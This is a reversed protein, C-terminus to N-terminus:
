ARNPRFCCARSSPSLRASTQAPMARNRPTTETFPWAGGSARSAKLRTVSGFTTRRSKSSSPQAYMASSRAFACSSRVTPAISGVIGPCENVIFRSLRTWHSLPWSDSSPRRSPQSFDMPLCHHSSATVPEILSAFALRPPQLEHMVPTTLEHPHPLPNRARHRSLNGLDFARRRPPRGLDFARHRPLNGLDFARHRPLNRLDFAGANQLTFRANPPLAQVNTEVLRVLGEQLPGLGVFARPGGSRCRPPFASAM